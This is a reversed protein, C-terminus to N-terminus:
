RSIAETESVKPPRAPEIIPLLSLLRDTFRDVESWETYEYDRSTDTDGGQRGSILRMLWRTLFGYQTYALAGGFTATVSPHWKTDKLFRAVYRLAEERAERTSRAATMSVSFFAAPVFSLESRHTTVFQEIYKQHKGIHISAGIFVADSDDLSFQLSLDKADALVVEHGRGRALYAIREAIKRTQGHTTGYIVHITAM